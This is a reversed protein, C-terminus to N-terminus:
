RLGPHSTALEQEYEARIVEYWSQTQKSLGKLFEDIQDAEKRLAQAHLRLFERLQTVEGVAIVIATNARNYEMGAM